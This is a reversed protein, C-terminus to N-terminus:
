CVAGHAAGPMTPGPQPATVLPLSAPNATKRRLRRTARGDRALRASAAQARLDRQREAALAASLYSPTTM